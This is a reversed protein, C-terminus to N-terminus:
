VNIRSFMNFLNKSPKALPTMPHKDGAVNSVELVIKAGKKM